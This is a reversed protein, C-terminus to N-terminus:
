AASTAAASKGSNRAFAHRVLQDVLKPFSIGDHAAAEPLLSKSTFGPMTNIELLYPTNTKADLMFDVRSLDRSGIATHARMALDKIKRVLREPLGLEFDHVADNGVYKAKYDFFERSTTIRIPSLARDHLIGVTLEMGSVFSEVLAKAHHAVVKNIAEDRDSENKCIFVDLSSGSAIPKVVCPAAIRCVEGTKSIVQWAPTPLKRKEWVRKTEVKDMGIQSARSGSGVFPIGRDELIKQLEGSEGFLGHLVPFVVDCPRDLGGLNTASVDSEFVDHGAERLASAVATGSKISIEREASPGGLLVTTKM